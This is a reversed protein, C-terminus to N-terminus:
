FMFAQRLTEVSKDRVPVSGRITRSRRRIEPVVEQLVGRDTGKWTSVGGSGGQLRNRPRQLLSSSDSNEALFRWSTSV